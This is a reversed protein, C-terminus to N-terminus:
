TGAAPEQRAGPLWARARRCHAALDCLVTSRLGLPGFIRKRLQAKITDKTAAEVILGLVIYFEHELVLGERGACVPGSPFHQGRGAKPPTWVYGLNGSLYPKM